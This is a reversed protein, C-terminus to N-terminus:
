WTHCKRLRETEEDPEWRVLDGPQCELLNCLKAVTEMGIPQGRRIRTLTGMPIYNGIEKIRYSNWGRKNLREIIDDAFVLM